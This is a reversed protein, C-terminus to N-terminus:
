WDLVIGVLDVGEYPQEQLCDALVLEGVGSDVDPDHVREAFEGATHAEVGLGGLQALEKVLHGLVRVALHRETGATDDEGSSFFRLL